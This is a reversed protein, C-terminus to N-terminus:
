NFLESWIKERLKEWAAISQESRAVVKRFCSPITYHGDSKIETRHSEIFSGEYLRAANLAQLLRISEKKTFKYIEM